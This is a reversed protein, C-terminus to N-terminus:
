EKNLPGYIGPYEFEESDFSEDFSNADSNNKFSEYGKGKYTYTFLQEEDHWEVGSIGLALLEIIVREITKEAQSVHFDKTDAGEKSEYFRILEETCFNINFLEGWSRAIWVILKFSHKGLGLGIPECMKETIIVGEPFSAIWELHSLKKMLLAQQKTEM